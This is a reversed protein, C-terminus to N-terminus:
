APMKLIINGAEYRQGAANADCEEVPTIKNLKKLIFDEFNQYNM